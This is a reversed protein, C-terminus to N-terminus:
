DNLCSKYLKCNEFNDLQLFWMEPILFSFQCEGWITYPFNIRFEHLIICFTHRAEVRVGIGTYPINFDATVEPGSSDSEASLHTGLGGRM